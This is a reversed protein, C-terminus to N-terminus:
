VGRGWQLQWGTRWRQTQGQKGQEYLKNMLNWMHIFDYPIQREKVLKNWKAYHEGCRDMSNCFTFNEEIKHGLLIGNYLHRMSTKDVWRSISMQAAEMDQGNYIISCHAYPHKHETSNTNQTGESTNGSTPDSPWIASGNKNKQPIEMSSWVTAAGSQMGVLLASSNGKRWM